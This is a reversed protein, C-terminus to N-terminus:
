AKIPKYHPVLLKMIAWAIIYALGCFFFMIFYGAPKGEFGLFTFAAGANEAYTFLAGASKQIIMSGIGGAMAGIGTITAITSKPFMDGITSFLNASWAQHGAGALGILIAPWWASQAGLPQALLAVMPFFAFLLMSLMRGSYPEMGKKEVFLKPLYGGFISLITVIAYLTFILAQGMGSSAKYGFQNQFYSPAWFLFFWWVGDTFFKGVIFAWTQRYGFCKLMPIAKEETQAAAKAAEAEAEDDQHIYALEAENVHKSNEPKDYMFQWFFMWIFGLAGIIIFAMEWGLHKALPPICLPAALAGVSAGANFLSTAFARDKKPFYEATVKIAAPFNGAEGLALIGRCLLFLYVSTTAVALAVNSGAEVARMAAVSELGEIQATAWGCAAHMCAGASWVGIAWLYGKKTGMWDVFKGAFLCAIAYFISFLSTITGYDSDTWHFEPKIFEEYTLSLVQRDLYNVTTAVFLLSCLWWRWNTMLKKQTSM